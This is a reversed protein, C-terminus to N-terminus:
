GRVEKHSYDAGHQTQCIERSYHVVSDQWLGTLYESTRNLIKTLWLGGFWKSLKPLTRYLLVPMNIYMDKDVDMWSVFPTTQGFPCNKYQSRIVIWGTHATHNYRLNELTTWLQTNSQVQRAFNLWKWYMSPFVNVKIAFLYLEIVQKSQSSMEQCTYLKKKWDRSSNSTPTSQNSQNDKPSM